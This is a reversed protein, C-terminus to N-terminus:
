CVEVAPTEGGRGKLSSGPRESDAASKHDYMGNGMGELRECDGGADGVEETLDGSVWGREGM